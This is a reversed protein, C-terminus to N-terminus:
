DEYKACLWQADGISMGHCNERLLHADLDALRTGNSRAIRIYSPLTEMFPVLLEEAKARNGERFQAERVVTNQFWTALGEELFSVEDERAPDLLHLCEHALQWRAQTPNALVNCGLRVIIHKTGTPPYWIAPGEDRSIHVGVITFSPDRPGFLRELCELFYSTYEPLTIPHHSAITSDTFRSFMSEPM